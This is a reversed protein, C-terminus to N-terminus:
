TCRADHMTYGIYRTDQKRYGIYGTDQIRNDTDQIRYGTDQIRYGVPQKITYPGPVRLNVVWRALVQSGSDEWGGLGGLRGTRM